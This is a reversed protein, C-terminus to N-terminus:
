LHVAEISDRMTFDEYLASSIRLKV